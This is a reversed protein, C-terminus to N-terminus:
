TRGLLRDQVVAGSRGLQGSRNLPVAADELEGFDGVADQVRRGARLVLREPRVGAEIGGGDERGQPVGQRTSRAAGRRDGWCSTRCFSRGGVVLVTSRLILLDDLRDPQGLLIGPIRALLGDDGGVQVDVEVAVLAVYRRPPARSSEADRVEALQIDGLRRDQGADQLRRGGVVEDGVGLRLRVLRPDHRAVLRDDLAAVRDELLHAAGVTIARRRPLYLSASRTAAQFRARPRWGVFWGSMIAGWNSRM